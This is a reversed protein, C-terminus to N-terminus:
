GAVDTTPQPADFQLCDTVTADLSAYFAAMIWMGAAIILAQLFVGTGVLSTLLQLPLGMALVVGVWGLSYATFAGLNRWCVVASFFVAKLPKTNGWNLLAPTHWFLLSVPWALGLRWLMGEMVVSASDTSPTAGSLDEMANAFSDLDPGLVGALVMILTTMGVYMGGLVLWHRAGHPTQFTTRISQLLAPLHIRQGQVAQRSALMFMLWMLPMLGILVLVGIVPIIFLLLASTFVLGLLGAFGLPQRAALVLGAQVWRFGQTFPVDKAFMHNNQEANPQLAM